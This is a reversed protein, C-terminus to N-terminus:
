REIISGSATRKVCIITSFEEKLNQDHSIMLIKMQRELKKIVSVFVEINYPDLSSSVEDLLLLQTEGGMRRAQLTGLALRIAFSVVFKEGGSLSHWGQAGSRTNVEIDFTEKWEGRDGQKQTVFNIYMPEPSFESLWNNAVRTLDEIVNDIIIAQVGDRGFAKMLKGYITAQKTAANLRDMVGKRDNSQVTLDKIKSSLSGISLLLENSSERNKKVKARKTELLTAAEAIDASKEITAISSIKANLDEIVESYKAIDSDFSQIQNETTKIRLTLTDISNQLSSILMQLKKIELQFGSNRVLEEKATAIKTKARDLKPQLVALKAQKDDIERKRGALDSWHHGCMSCEDNELLNKIQNQLNKASTMGELIAEEMRKLDATRTALEANPLLKQKLFELEKNRSQLASSESELTIKLEKTVSEHETRLEELQAKSTTKDEREKILSNYQLLLKYKADEDKIRSELLPIEEELSATEKNLGALSTEAVVLAAKAQQLNEEVKETAELQKRTFEIEKEFKEFRLKATKQYANWPDLSLLSSMLSHRTSFTGQAFDFFSNQRFYVSNLFVDYSSKIVNCIEQNTIKNTDGHKKERSGDPNVEWFETFMKSYKAFRSRKIQYTKDEHTFDLIVECSATGLKVVEDAHKNASEGFLAWCIAELISSKGAGNSRRSDAQREGIILASTFDFDLVSHTHNQFNTMELRVPLM